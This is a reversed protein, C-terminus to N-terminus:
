SEGAKEAEKSPPMPKGDAGFPPHVSTALMAWFDNPNTTTKPTAQVDRETKEVSM